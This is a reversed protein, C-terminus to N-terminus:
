CQNMKLSVLKNTHVEVKIIHYYNINMLYHGMNLKINKLYDKTIISKNILNNYKVKLSVEITILKRNINRESKKWLKSILM